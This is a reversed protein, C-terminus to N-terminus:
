LRVMVSGYLQLDKQAVNPSTQIFIDISKTPLYPALKM